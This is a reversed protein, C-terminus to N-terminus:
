KSAIWITHRTGKNGHAYVQVEEVKFGAKRVKDSFVRDASASWVALVGKPRLAQYCRQLAQASYLWSNRKQTLGEPGNDVDLMIADYRQEANKLCNAVDDQIM